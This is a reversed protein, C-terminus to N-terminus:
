SHFHWTSIKDSSNLSYTYEEHSYSFPKGFIISVWNGNLHWNVTEIYCKCCCFDYDWVYLICYVYVWQHILIQLNIFSFAWKLYLSFLLSLVSYRIILGCFSFYVGFLDDYQTVTYQLLESLVEFHVFYISLFVM